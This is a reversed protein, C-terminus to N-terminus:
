PFLKEWLQQIRNKQTPASSPSDGAMVLPFDQGISYTFPYQAFQGHAESLLPVQQNLHTNLESVSIAQDNNADGQRMGDLLAYTFIGHGLAKVEGAF